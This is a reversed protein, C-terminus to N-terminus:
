RYEKKLLKWRDSDMKKKGSNIKKITEVVEEINNYIYKEPFMGLIWFPCKTRGGEISIFIAKKSRCITVLEEASGWSAIEPHIHAIAFDALDCLRLDFNRIPKMHKRVKDLKNRNTLDRLREHIGEDEHSPDLFPKDYPNFVTIGLSSLEKTVYERWARGNKYQMHGITYVKTNELLNM